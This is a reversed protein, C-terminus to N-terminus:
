VLMGGPRLEWEHAGGEASGGGGGGGDCYRLIQPPGGSTEIEWDYCGQSRAHVIQIVLVKGSLHPSLINLDFRFCNLKCCLGCMYQQLQHDM